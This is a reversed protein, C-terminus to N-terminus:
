NWVTGNEAEKSDEYKAVRKRYFERAVTDLIGMVLALQAYSDKPYVRNLLRTITYAVLGETNPSLGATARIAVVLSEIHPDLPLRDEQVIYPM